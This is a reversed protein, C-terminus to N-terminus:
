AKPVFMHVNPRKAVTGSGLPTQYRGEYVNSIFVDYVLMARSLILGASGLNQLKRNCSVYM